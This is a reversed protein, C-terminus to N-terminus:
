CVLFFFLLRSLYFSLSVHPITNINQTTEVLTNGSAAPTAGGSTAIMTEQQANGISTTTQKRLHDLAPPCTKNVMQ